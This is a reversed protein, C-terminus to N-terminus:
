ALASNNDIKPLVPDSTSVEAVRGVSEVEPSM